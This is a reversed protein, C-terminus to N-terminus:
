DYKIQEVIYGDKELLKVIGEDGIIHGVGLTCFVNKNESMYQKLKNTMHYNRETILLKVYNNSLEIENETLGEEKNDLTLKELKESNGQKWALYLEKTAEVQFEYNQVYNSLLMKNLENSFNSLLDFQAEVSEIELIEKKNETALNLFHMDIGGNTKLDAEEYIMSEFLSIFFVPKFSDYIPSYLNKSELIKIIKTYLEEGLDDKVTRDDAYKMKKTQEVQVNSDINVINCEVALYDSANYASMITDNLPYIKDDAVHISGLLYITANNEKNTIKYFIPTTEEEAKIKVQDEKKGCGTLIWPLILIILLLNCFFKKV